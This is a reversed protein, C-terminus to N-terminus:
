KVMKNLLWLKDKSFLGLSMEFFAEKRKKVPQGM